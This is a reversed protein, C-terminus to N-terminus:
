AEGNSISAASPTWVVSACDLAPMEIVQFASHPLRESPWVRAQVVEDPVLGIKVLSLEGVRDLSVQAESPHQQQDHTFANLLSDFGQGLKELQM